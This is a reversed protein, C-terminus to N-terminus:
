WCDGKCKTATCTGSCAVGPGAFTCGVGESHEFTICEVCWGGACAVWRLGLPECVEEGGPEPICVECRLADGIPECDVCPADDGDPCLSLGIGDVVARREDSVAERADCSLLVIAAVAVIAVIGLRILGTYALRTAEVQALAPKNQEAILTLETDFNEGRARVLAAQAEARVAEARAEAEIRAPEAALRATEVEVQARHKAVRQKTEEEHYGM